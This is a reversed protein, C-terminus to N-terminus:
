TLSETTKHCHDVCHLMQLMQLLFFAPATIDLPLCLLQTSLRRAVIVRQLLSIRSDLGHM